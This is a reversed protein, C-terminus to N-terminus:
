PPPPGPAILMSKDLPGFVWIGPGNEVTKSRDKDRSGYQVAILDGDAAAAYTMPDLLFVVRRLDGGPHYSRATKAKSGLDLVLLEDRAQFTRGSALELEM